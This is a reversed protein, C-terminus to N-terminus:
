TKNFPFINKRYFIYTTGAAFTDALWDFIDFSRDPIFYNQILETTFGWIVVAITIKIAIHKQSKESLPLKKLPYIFLFSLIAFLGFHIWKDFYILNLWNDVKPLNSAPLCILILVLFFWAIGPIFNSFQSENFPTPRNKM